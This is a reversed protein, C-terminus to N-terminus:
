ARGHATGEKGKSRLSLAKRRVTRVCACTIRDIPGSFANVALIAFCVGTDYSGFYRFMMTVVGLVLGYVLRSTSSHPLCVPDNILFVSAYLLAGSLLEYTVTLLRERMFEWPWALGIGGMRPFFFAIAACALLFGAPAFLTIRKRMWLYMACAVVVLCATVGMSGAYNGLALNFLSINPMGGLSLTHAASEVITVGTTGWLPIQSFPQPFQFLQEPWSVAGLAYGIAPPFFPYVGYGGFAAKGVLVTVAVCVAVVYYNVTAPMLLVLIMSFAFSSNEAKDYPQRRLAAVLHDCIYGTVLAVATLALPRPGYLYVAMALLPLTMLAVDNHTARAEYRSLLLTDEKM